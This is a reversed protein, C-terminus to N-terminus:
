RRSRPRWRRSPGRPPRTADAPARVRRSRLPEARAGEEARNPRAPSRSRPRHPPGECTGARRADNSGMSAHPVSREQPEIGNDATEHTSAEESPTGTRAELSPSQVESPPRASAPLQAGPVAPVTVGSQVTAARPRSPVRRGRLGTRVPGRPAPLGRGSRPLRAGARPEAPGASDPGADPAGGEAEGVRVRARDGAPVPARVPVPPRMRRGLVATQVRLSGVRRPSLALPRRLTRGIGCAPDERSPPTARRGRVLWRISPLLLRPGHAPPSRAVRRIPSPSPEAPPRATGRLSELCTRM